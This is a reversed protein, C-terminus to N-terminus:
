FFIKLGNVILNVFTVGLIILVASLYLKKAYNLKIFAGKSNFERSKVYAVPNRMEIKKPQSKKSGSSIALVKYGQRMKLYLEKPTPYEQVESVANVKRTKMQKFVGKSKEQIKQQAESLKTEITEIPLNTQAINKIARTAEKKSMQGAHAILEINGEMYEESPQKLYFLKFLGFGVGISLISMFMWQPITYEWYMFVNLPEFFQNFKFFLSLLSYGTVQKLIKRIDLQDSTKRGNLHKKEQWRTRIALGVASIICICILVAWVKLEMGNFLGFDIANGHTNYSYNESTPIYDTRQLTINIYGLNYWSDYAWIELTVNETLTEDWASEDITFAGKSPSEILFKSIGGDISYWVNGLNEEYEDIHFLILPAVVGVKAYPVPNLISIIPGLVDHFCYFVLSGENSAADLGFIQICLTGNGAVKNWLASPTVSFNVQGPARYIAVRESNNISYFLSHLNLDSVSFTITPISNSYHSYQEPSIHILVPNLTDKVIIRSVITSQMASDLIKISINLDGDSYQTFISEHILGTTMNLPYWPSGNICYWISELNSEIITLNLVPTHNWNSRMLPGNIICVAPLSDRFVTITVDFYNGALDLARYTLLHCGQSLQNWYVFDFLNLDMFDCGDVSVLLCKLNADDVMKELGFLHNHISGNLPLIIQLYPNVTDKSFSYILDSRGQQGFSDNAYFRISHTGDTLLAWLQTSLEGIYGTFTDNYCNDISYWTTNIGTLDYYMVEFTIPNSSIQYESPEVIQIVPNACEKFFSDVMVFQMNAAYDYTIIYVEIEGDLLSNFLASDFIGECTLTSFNVNTTIYESVNNNQSDYLQMIVAALDNETFNIQYHPSVNTNQGGISISASFTVPTTDKTVNTTYTAINGAKDQLFLSINIIGDDLNWWTSKDLHWTSENVPDVAFTLNQMQNIQYWFTLEERTFINSVGHLNDRIIGYFVPIDNKYYDWQFEVDIVPMTLDLVLTTEGSGSNEYIDETITYLKIYGDHFFPYNWDLPNIQGTFTSNVAYTSLPAFETYYGSVVGQQSLYCKGYTLNQEIITFNYDPSLSYSDNESPANIQSIPTTSDKFIQYVSRNADFLYNNYTLRNYLVLHLYHAGDELSTWQAQDIQLAVNPDTGIPMASEQYFYVADGPITTPLDPNGDMWACSYYHLYKEALQFEFYPAVDNYVQDPLFNTSNVSTLGVLEFPVQKHDINGWTDNIWLNYYYKNSPHGYIEDWQFNYLSEYFSTGKRVTGNWPDGPYNEPDNRSLWVRITDRDPENADWHVSITGENGIVSDNIGFWGSVEPFASVDSISIIPISNDEASITLIDLAHSNDYIGFNVTIQIYSIEIVRSFDAQYSFYGSQGSFAMTEVLGSTNFIKLEYTFDSYFAYGKVTISKAVSNSFIFNGIYKHGPSSPVSSLSVGFYQTKLAVSIDVGSDHNGLVDTISLPTQPKWGADRIDVPEEDIPVLNKESPDNPNKGDGFNSIILGSLVLGIFIGLFIQYKKTIKITKM